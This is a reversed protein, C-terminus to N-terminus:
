IRRLVHSPDDDGDKLHIRGGQLGSGAAESLALMTFQSRFAQPEAMQRVAHLQGRVTEVDFEPAPFFEKSRRPATTNAKCFSVSRM